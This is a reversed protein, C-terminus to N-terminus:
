REIRQFASILSDIDSKTLEDYLSSGNLSSVVKEVLYKDLASNGSLKDAISFYRQINAYANHILEPLVQGYYESASITYSDSYKPITGMSAEPENQTIVIVEIFPCYKKLIIKFEEGSFKGSVTGSNEFLMSDIVIINAGQVVPNKILSEYGDAPNFLIEEYVKVFRNSSFETDLYRSLSPDPKDDIYVIKIEKM